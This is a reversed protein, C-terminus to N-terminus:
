WKIEGIIINEKDIKEKTINFISKINELQDETPETSSFLTFLTDYREVYEGFTKEIKIGASHDIKDTKFIRGAGFELLAKGFDSVDNFKVYGAQNTKIVTRYYPTFYSLDHIQEPNGGQAAILEKFAELAQGSDIVEHFLVKTEEETLGKSKMALETAIKLIVEYIDEDKSKGTLIKIVEKVEAGNGIYQGLPRDMSTMLIFVERGYKTAINKMTDGLIMADDMNKIFAGSGVKLDILIYKAGTAIKKSMISAAILPISNVTGTVDRLAYIKGDAPTLNPTQGTIAAGIKEVQKSAEEISLSANFNDFSEFKDITGGTFGLSRGSMKLMNMGMAMSIPLLLLTVKDGIGGTSHKDVRDELPLSDGSDVLAKTYWFTEDDNMGFEFVVKLWETMEEDSISDESVFGNVTFSIEEETLPKNTLKKNIIEVINM